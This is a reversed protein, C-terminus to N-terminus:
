CADEGYLERLGAEIEAQRQRKLPNEDLQILLDDLHGPIKEKALVKLVQQELLKDPDTEGEPLLAGYLGTAKLLEFSWKVNGNNIADEINEVAQAALGRLREIPVRFLDQRRQELTAMFLPHTTRWTWITTRDVGVAAAVETDTKGLILLDVANEQAPTLPKPRFTPKQQTKSPKM